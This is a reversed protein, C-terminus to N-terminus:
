YRGLHLAYGLFIFSLTAAIAISLAKFIEIRVPGKLHLGWTHVVTGMSSGIFEQFLYMCLFLCKWKRILKITGNQNLRLRWFSLKKRGHYMYTIFYDNRVFQLPLSIRKNKFYIIKIFPQQNKKEKRKKKLYYCDRTEKQTLNNWNLNKVYFKLIFISDNIKM